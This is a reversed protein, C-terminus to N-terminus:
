QVVDNFISGNTYYTRELQPTSQTLCVVNEGIREACISCPDRTIEDAKLYILIMLVLFIVLLIVAIFKFRSNTIWYEKSM